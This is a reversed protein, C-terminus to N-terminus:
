NEYNSWMSELLNRFQTAIERQRARSLYEMTGIADESDPELEDDEEDDKDKPKDKDKEEKDFLVDNVRERRIHNRLICCSLVIKVQSEFPYPPALTLIPFRKKLIGIIREVINRLSSHRLNFLEKPNNPNMTGYEKLQYRTGRHPAIFSPTNAYGGDVLYYKGEPVHLKNGRTLASNLVRSDTASGEWGALGYQFQLDFSCAVLVNQSVTGERNIFPVKECSAILAPIHTGDIAGVYNKFYPYFRPDELIELPTTPSAPEFFDGALAVIVNLVTNFHRSITEGSHQFREQLLRNRENHGVTLMFIALQEEIRVGSSHALLGRRELLDVFRWFIHKEMRFSEQCRKPHAEESLLDKVFDAGSLNSVRCPIKSINNQYYCAALATTATAAAIIMDEDDSEAM